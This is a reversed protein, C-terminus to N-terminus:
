DNKKTCKDIEEMIMRLYKWGLKKTVYGGARRADIEVLKIGAKKCLNRKEADNRQTHELVREGFIIDYHFAGNIEFGLSLEPIYIDLESGITKKNFEIELKPYYEILRPEIFM